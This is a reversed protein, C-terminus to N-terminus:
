FYLIIIYLRLLLASKFVLWLALLFDGFLTSWSCSLCSLKLFLPALLPCFLPIELQSLEIWLHMFLLVLSAISYIFNPKFQIYQPGVEIIILSASFIILIFKCSNLYLQYGSNLFILALCYIHSSPFGVLWLM